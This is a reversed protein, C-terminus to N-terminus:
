VARPGGTPRCKQCVSAGASWSGSTVIIGSGGCTVCKPEPQPTPPSLLVRLRDCERALSDCAKDHVAAGLPANTDATHRACVLLYRLGAELAGLRAEAASLAARLSAIEADRPDGSSPMAIMRPLHVACYWEGGNVCTTARAGCVQCWTPNATNTSDSM